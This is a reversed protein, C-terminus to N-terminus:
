AALHWSLCRATHPSTLCLIFFPIRQDFVSSQFNTIPFFPHFFFVLFWRVFVSFQFESTLLCFSLFLLLFSNASRSCFSIRQVFIFPLFECFLFPHSVSFYLCFSIWMFWFLLIESFLIVLFFSGSSSFFLSFTSNVSWSNQLQDATKHPAKHPQSYDQTTNIVRQYTTLLWTLNNLLRTRNNLLIVLNHLAALPQPTDTRTCTRVYM